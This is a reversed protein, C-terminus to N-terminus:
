SGDNGEKDPQLRAILKRIEVAMGSHSRLNLSGRLVKLVEGREEEMRSIATHLEHHDCVHPVGIPCEVAM